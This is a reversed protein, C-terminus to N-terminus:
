DLAATGRVQFPPLDQQADLWDVGVEDVRAGPPGNRCWTLMQEVLPREGQFVAEVRGDRLNRVWGDLGLRLAEHFTYYRFSVGQVQGSILAHACAVPM